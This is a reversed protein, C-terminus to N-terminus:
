SLRGSRFIAWLLGLGLIGAILYGVIALTQLRVIGLVTLSPDATVMLSSGVVIAAIVVSFSLRNSARDIERGLGELNEHRINVQWKGSSLQQLVERLQQPGTKLFSLLHWMTVSGIRLARKPSFRGWLMKRIKPKVIETIDLEPDLNLAVGWVTALSKFMLLVDRPVVIENRRVAEAFETFVATMSIRSMPQGIYKSLLTQLDRTLQRRDTGKTSAGMETLADAIIEPDRQVAGLVLILLHGALEDSIVGVQGFDILGIRDPPLVFINGPHPDSHFTRLEFFQKLYLEALRLALKKRDLTTGNSSIAKDIKVGDIALLTLMGKSTHSWVVDPTEVGEDDEFYHHMRSTTAAEFLYDLERLLTREFEEVLVKPKYTRSEPIWSEMADALWALLNLDARIDSEIDPRKVKVVVKRHDHLKAKYVQGISGAAIPEDCFEAFAEGIPMKLEREIIQRAHESDFPDVKDQLQLLDELVDAPVVDPRTALMQGLKVFVPGLDNAVQRLRPGLQGDSPGSQDDSSGKKLWLPVFRGLDMREVVHGFGHQTLVRAIHQLRHLNHVSQSIQSIKLAM